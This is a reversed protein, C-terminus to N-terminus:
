FRDPRWEELHEYQGGFMPRSLGTDNGYADYHIYSNGLAKVSHGTKAMHKVGLM